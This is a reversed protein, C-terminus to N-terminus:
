KVTSMLVISVKSVAGIAALPIESGYISLAGYYNFSNNQLIMVFNACIHTMFIASESIVVEGLTSIKASFYERKIKLSHFKRILYYSRLCASLVQGLTTALAIESIGMHFVFLFLPDAFLNFIVGSLLMAMAFDPNGDSRILYSCGTAFIGFSISICIVQAYPYAVATIISTM